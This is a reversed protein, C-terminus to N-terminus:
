WEAPEGQKQRVPMLPTDVDFPTGPLFRGALTYLDAFWPRGGWEDDSTLEHWIHNMITSDFDWVDHWQMVGDFELEVDPPKDEAAPTGNTYATLQGQITLRCTGLPKTTPFKGSTAVDLTRQSANGDAAADARVLERLERAGAVIGPLSAIFVDVGGNPTNLPITKAQAVTLPFPDGNGYGYHECLLPHLPHSVMRKAVDIMKRKIVKQQSPAMPGLPNRALTRAFAANGM